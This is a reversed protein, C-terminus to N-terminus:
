SVGAPERREQVTEEGRHRRPNGCMWCSCLKRTGAVKGHARVVALVAEVFPQPAPTIDDTDPSLKTEINFRTSTDGRAKVREFSRKM